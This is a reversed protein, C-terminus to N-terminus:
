WRPGDPAQRPAPPPELPRRDAPREPAPRPVDRQVTAEEAETDVAETFLRAQVSVRVGNREARARLWTVTGGQDVRDRAVDDLGLAQQWAAFTASVEPASAAPTDISGNIGGTRSIMWIIAPLEAHEDLIAALQRAAERQWRSRDAQTVRSAEGFPHRSHGTMLLAGKGAAIV